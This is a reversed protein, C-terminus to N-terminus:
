YLFCVRRQAETTHLEAELLMCAESTCPLRCILTLTRHTQCGNDSPSLQENEVTTECAHSVTIKRQAGEISCLVDTVLSIDSTAAFIERSRLAWYSSCSLPDSTCDIHWYQVLSGHNILKKIVIFMPVNPIIIMATHANYM